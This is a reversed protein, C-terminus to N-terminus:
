LLAFILEVVGITGVGATVAIGAVEPVVLMLLLLLSVPKEPPSPLCGFGTLRLLHSEEFLIRSITQSFPAQRM